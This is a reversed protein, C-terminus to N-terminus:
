LYLRRYRVTGILRGVCYGLRVVMPALQAMSRARVLGTLADRWERTAVRLTRPPMGAARFHRYLLVNSKGWNKAQRYLGRLTSRYRYRYLAEPVFHSRFERWSCDGASCWTRLAPFNVPFGGVKEFLARRMAINVGTGPMFEFFRDVGEAQWSPGHADRVWAPNLTESDVRSTVFEQSELAASMAALYGPAVEDDADVFFLKEGTLLM